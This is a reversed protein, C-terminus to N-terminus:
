WRTATASSGEVTQQVRAPEGPILAKPDGTSGLEAM